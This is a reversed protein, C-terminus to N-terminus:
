MSFFYEDTIGNPITVKIDYSGQSQTDTDYDISIKLTQKPTWQTDDSQGEVDQAWRPYVGSEVEVQHPIREFSGIRGVFVDIEELSLIRTDGVNKVWVFIEFRGNANTDAFAGSSDLEGVAHIIEIDSRLRDNVKASSTTIAGSARSVVPFIANIIAAISAVGAITLMM